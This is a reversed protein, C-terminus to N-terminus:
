FSQKFWAQFMLITWIQEGWDYKKSKHQSWMNTVEPASFIGDRAMDTPDLLTEAWESLPGRLWENVPVTFGMKPKGVIREPIYSYLVQKLLWKPTSGKIKYNLPVTWAFEVLRHDLMPARVELSNSMSARDVKTLIDDPLYRLMDELILLERPDSVESLFDLTPPESESCNHDIICSLDSFKSTAERYYSKLDGCRALRLLKQVHEAQLHFNQSKSLWNLLKYSLTQNGFGKLGSLYNLIPRPLKSIMSWARYGSGYRNYGGFLEDGGDGSLCVKVDRRAMECLIYTPIQSADAFPEDFIRPMDDIISLAESESVYLETHNTGIYRAVTAAHRAENYGSENFGISFSNVSTGCLSQMIASVVTSDCGGSLFVGVPVDAIMQQEITATLLHDLKKTLADSTADHLRHEENAYDKLDWYKRPESIVNGGDAVTVTHGPLLKLVGQYICRPASIYGKRLYEALANRNLKPRWSPHEKLAKLESAFFFASESRGYYLPKEGMRDRALTLTKDYGDWIAFSFMGVSKKLFIEIGWTSIAALLTETDSHGTWNYHTNTRLIESRLKLHNYIEGNFVVTYRGCQSTMPQSGADSVDLISLRRHSLAVGDHTSEWVGCDDPGRRYLTRAMKIAVGPLM